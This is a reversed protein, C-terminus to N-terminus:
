FTSIGNANRCSYEIAALELQNNKNQLDDPSEIYKTLDTMKRGKLM